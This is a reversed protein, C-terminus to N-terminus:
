GEYHRKEGTGCSIEILEDTLCTHFSVVVMDTQEPFFEHPVSKDIVYWFETLSHEPSGFRVMRLSQEGIQARGQGELMVMHQISNPHYHAGSPMGQKLLFIWGSKISQPMECCLQDLDVVSWVFPEESEVSKEKLSQVADYFAIEQIFLTVAKHLEELYDIIM